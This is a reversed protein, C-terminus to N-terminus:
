DLFGYTAHVSERRRLGSRTKLTVVTSLTASTVRSDFPIVCSTMGKVCGHLAPGRKANNPAALEARRRSQPSGQRARRAATRTRGARWRVHAIPRYATSADALLGLELYADCLECWAAAGQCPIGLETLLHSAPYAALADYYGAALLARGEVLRAHALEPRPRDGLHVM